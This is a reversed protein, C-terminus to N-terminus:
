KEKMNIAYCFDKGDYKKPEKYIELGNNGDDQSAYVVGDKYLEFYGGDIMIMYSQNKELKKFDSIPKLGKGRLFHKESEISLEGGSDMLELQYSVISDIIDEAKSGFKKFEEDNMESVKKQRKDEHEKVQVLKGSKTTREYQRIHSKILVDQEKNDSGIFSNLINKRPNNVIEFDNNKM